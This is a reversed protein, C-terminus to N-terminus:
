RGRAAPRVRAWFRTLYHIEVPLISRLADLVREPRDLPFSGSLRLGAVAPDCVLYGPRHRDLEALFDALRMRSAVIMNDQWAVRDEEALGTRRAADGAFEASEGAELAIRGGRAPLIAVAGELVDLRTRDDYLRVAFRTGLPQLLGHRTAVWLPRPTPHATDPGTHLLIEGRLLHLRRGHASFDISVASNSNLHLRSGDALIRTRREGTATREDALWPQWPVDDGLSLGVGTTFVLAVLLTVSQRRGSSEPCTLAARAVAARLPSAAGGLRANVAEIRQWAREHAPHQARWGLIAQAVSSCGPAAQREVLWTVAQLAVDPPVAEDDCGERLPSPHSHM